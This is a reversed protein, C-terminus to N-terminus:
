SATSVARIAAPTPVGSPSEMTACRQGGIIVSRLGWETYHTDGAWLLAMTQSGTYAARPLLAFDEGRLEKLRDYTAKQYLRPYDNHVERCTTGNSMRLDIDSPVVEESRDLKFGAVGDDIVKQLYDQWWTIADPNTFDVLPRDKHRDWRPVLYGREIAEEVMNGGIWPAIWLLLKINKSGLWQVMKEPNPLRERDWEFDAYGMGGGPGWPRDIWYVSIPIDFADLMLIDEVIQSNYPARCPTGDYFTPLNVHENRWRWTGFAWKPPMVPKSALQVYKRIIEAPRKAPLIHFTLADGQFTFTIIDPRSAAMDYEGPWTGEVYLGYGASSLYFPAYVSVTPKVYMGVKQGRLDLAVKQGPRWSLNQSGDVVRELLGTLHEIFQPQIRAGLKESAGLSDVEFRMAFGGVGNSVIQVMAKREDEMECYLLIRRSTQVSTAIKSVNVIGDATQVFFAPLGKRRDAGVLCVRDGSTTETVDLAVPTRWVTLGYDGVVLDPPEAASMTAMLVAALILSIGSM